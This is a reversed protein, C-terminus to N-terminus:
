AVYSANGEERLVIARLCNKNVMRGELKKCLLHAIELHYHPVIVTLFYDQVTNPVFLDLEAPVVRCPLYDCFILLSLYTRVYPHRGTCEIM